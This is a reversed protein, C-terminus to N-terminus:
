SGTGLLWDVLHAAARGDQNRAYAAAFKEATPGHEAALADVDRVADVVDDSTRLLPGPATAALDINLGPSTEFEAMDPVYLLVPRGTSAHDVLLGSYDTILVDSALLLEAVRPYESVDRVDPGLGQVDDPLGPHRRVLLTYGSPLAASVRPLDLLRGPDSWGRKRLDM